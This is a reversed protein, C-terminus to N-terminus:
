IFDKVIALLADSELVRNSKKTYIHNNSVCQIDTMQLIRRVTSLDLNYLMWVVKMPVLEYKIMRRIFLKECYSLKQYKSRQLLTKKPDLYLKDENIDNSIEKWEIDM